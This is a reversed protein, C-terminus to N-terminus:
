LALVVTANLEWINLSDFLLLASGFWFLFILLIFVDRRVNGFVM